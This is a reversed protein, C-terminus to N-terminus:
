LLEEQEHSVSQSGTIGSLLEDYSVLQHQPEAGSPSPMDGAGMRIFRSQLEAITAFKGNAADPLLDEVLYQESDYEFALKLVTVIWKCADRKGLHQDACDWLQRYNDSPLIDDRLQSYRFAQPKHALARIIHKYDIRRGRTEGVKPYVRPLELAKHQGVYLALRDHYLRIQIREGILRSPVTYVVRRVEITSSRTVKVTLVHYDAAQHEPLAQLAAQEELFRSHSRRNLRDVAQDIFAQYAEISEFDHSGRLKLQQSLRRKLSGNACEVVGNEHSQGLNNRTPEM